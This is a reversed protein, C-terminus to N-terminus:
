EADAGASLVSSVSQNSFTRVSVEYGQPSCIMRVVKGCHIQEGIRLGDRGFREKRFGIVGGVYDKMKLLYCGM